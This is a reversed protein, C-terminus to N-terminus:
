VAGWWPSAFPSVIMETERALQTINIHTFLKFLCHTDVTSKMSFIILANKQPNKKSLNPCIGFLPPPIVWIWLKTPM